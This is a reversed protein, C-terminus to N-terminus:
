TNVNAIHVLKLIPVMPLYHLNWTAVYHINSTIGGTKIEV